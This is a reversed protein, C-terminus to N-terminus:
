RTINTILTNEKSYYKRSQENMWESKRNRTERRKWCMKRRSNQVNILSWFIHHAFQRWMWEFSISFWLLTPYCPTRGKRSCGRSTPPRISLHFPTNISLIHQYLLTHQYRPPTTPLSTTNNIYSTTNIYSPTTPLSTTNTHDSHTSIALTHHDFRSNTRSSTIYSILSSINVHSMLPYTINSWGQCGVFLTQDHDCRHSSRPSPHLSWGWYISWWWCWGWRCWWGWRSWSDSIRRNVGDPPTVYMCVYMCLTNLPHTVYM